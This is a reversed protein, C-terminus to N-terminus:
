LSDAKTRIVRSKKSTEKKLWKGPSYGTVEKFVRHYSSVSGFGVSNVIRSSDAKSGYKLLLKQAHKVRYTNIFNNFSSGTKRNVAISVYKDNTGLKHSLMSLSLNANIYLQETEIEHKMKEFLEDFKDSDESAEYEDDFEVDENIAFQREEQSKNQAAPKDSHKESVKNQEASQVKPKRTCNIFDVPTDIYDHFNQQESGQKDINTYTYNAGNRKDVKNEALCFLM